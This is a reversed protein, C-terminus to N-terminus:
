VWVTSWHSPSSAERLISSCTPFSRCNMRILPVITPPRTPTSMWVALTTRPHVSGAGHRDPVSVDPEPLEQLQGVEHVGARVGFPDEGLAPHRDVALDLGAPAAPEHVPVHHREVGEAGLDGGRDLRGGNSTSGGRM